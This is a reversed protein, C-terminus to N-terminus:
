CGASKVAALGKFRSKSNSNNNPALEVCIRNGSRWILAAADQEGGGFGAAKLLLDDASGVLDDDLVVAHARDVAGAWTSRSILSTYNGDVDDDAVGTDAIAALESQRTLWDAVANASNELSKERANGVSRLVSPITVVLVIALVVIVALLEILTFGKRNLKKM